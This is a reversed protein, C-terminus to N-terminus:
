ANAFQQGTMTNTPLALASSADNLVLHNMGSPSPLGVLANIVGELGMCGQAVPVAFTDDGQITGSVVLATLPGNPDVTGDPDFTDFALMANSIDTNAPHLVMPDMESGIFCNPGLDVPSGNTLHIKTPLTLIPVGVSLGAFLDFDTPTGASWVPLPDDLGVAVSASPPHASKRLLPRGASREAGHGVETVKEAGRGNVEM